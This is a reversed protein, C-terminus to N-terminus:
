VLILLWKPYIPFVQTRIQKGVKEPTRVALLAPPETTAQLINVNFNEKPALNDILIIYRGEPNTMERYNRQPWLSLTQPKFNFVVEIKEATRRGRNAIVFYENYVLLPPLNQPLHNPAAQNAPAPNQIVTHCYAHTKSWAVKTRPRAIWVIFTALLGLLFSLLPTPISNLFAFM